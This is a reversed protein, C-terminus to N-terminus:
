RSLLDWAKLRGRFRPLDVADLSFDWGTERLVAPADPNGVRITVVARFGSGSPRVWLGGGTEWEVVKKM